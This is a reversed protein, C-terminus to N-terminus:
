FRFMVRYPGDALIVYNPPHSSQFDVALERNPGLELSPDKM